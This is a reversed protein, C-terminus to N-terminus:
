IGSDDIYAPMACALLSCYQRRWSWLAWILLSIKSIIYLLFANYRLVLSWFISTWIIYESCFRFFPFKLYHQYSHLNVCSKLFSYYKSILQFRPLSWWKFIAFKLGSINGLPHWMVTCMAIKRQIPSLTQLRDMHRDLM